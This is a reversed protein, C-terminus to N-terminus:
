PLPGIKALWSLKSRLASVISEIGLVALLLGLLLAPPGNPAALIIYVGISSLLLGIAFTAIRFGLRAYYPLDSM